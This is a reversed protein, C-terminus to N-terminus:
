GKSDSFVADFQFHMSKVQQRQELEAELAQNKEELKKQYYQAVCVGCSFTLWYVSFISKIHTSGM